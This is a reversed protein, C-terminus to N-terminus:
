GQRDFPLTFHLRGGGEPGTTLELHGGRHEIRSRHRELGHLPPVPTPPGDGDDDVTVDFM